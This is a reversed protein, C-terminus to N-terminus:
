RTFPRALNRAMADDIIAHTEREAKKSAVEMQEGIAEMQKGLAEMPQGALEMQRGLEEMPKAYQDMRRAEQDMIEGQADMLDGLADIRRSLADMERELERYAAGDTEEDLEEMRDQLVGQERSLARQKRSLARMEREAARMRETPEHRESLAEMKEGLAEMRDGHAEMQASLPEMKKGLADTARWADRTRALVAPDTVVWDRGDRRFWLVEGDPLKKLTDISDMDLSGQSNIHKGRKNVLAYFREDRRQVDVKRSREVKRKSDVVITGKHEIGQGDGSVVEPDIAELRPKREEVAAAPDGLGAYTYSAISFAVLGLLPFLIRASPHTRRMPSVLQRIRSMLQGGHAAQLLHLAPQQVRQLESLESLALALKRPACAVESALQDAVQEREVRIRHSLWWVVPHYFLVAEVANQLLNVLYDHRRIHALEHALLAEVLDAPLRSLLAVPLLVVPRVWGTTAPSELAHV